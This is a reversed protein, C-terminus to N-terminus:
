PRYPTITTGDEIFTNVPTLVVGTASAPIQITQSISIAADGFSTVGRRNKDIKNAAVTGYNTYVGQASGTNLWQGAGGGWNHHINLGSVTSVGQTIQIGANSQTTPYYRNWGGQSNPAPPAAGPTGTQYRLVDDDRTADLYANLTSFRIEVVSGPGAGQIQVCDNHTKSIVSDGSHFSDPSVYTMKDFDCGDVLIDLPDTKHGTNSNYIGMCDTCFEAKCRLLHIDHGRFGDWVGKPFKPRCTTDKVVINKAANPSADILGASFSGDNAQDYGEILCRDITVNPTFIRIYGNPLWLGTLSVTAVTNVLINGVSDSFMGPNGPIAMNPTVVTLNYGAALFPEVGVEYDVGPQISASPTPPVYAGVPLDGVHIVYNAGM